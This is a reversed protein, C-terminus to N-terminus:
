LMIIFYIYYLMIYIEWEKLHEMPTDYTEM